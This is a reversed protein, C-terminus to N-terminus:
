QLGEVLARLKGMALRVRSKITGLPAPLLEAIESQSRDEFFHLRIVEAQDAPLADIAARIRSERQATMIHDDPSPDPNPEIAYSLKRPNDARRAADIRMNRAITFIWTSVAARAPDFTEAKQWVCLLTEQTLEEAAMADLGFRLFFGKLRPAFYDFLVAFRASDRNRAITDICAAWDPLTNGPNCPAIQEADGLEFYGSRDDQMSIALRVSRAGCSVPYKEIRRNRPM